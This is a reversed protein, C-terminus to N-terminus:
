SALALAAQLLVNAGNVCDQWETYERASHSHGGVSPVFIMGAPCIKALWQADHGAGSPLFRYSLGLTGCAEAVAQRLRPDTLIPAAQDVQKFLLSLRFRRAAACAAERLAVEVEELQAAHSSRFELSVVVTQPVVNFAGPEFLMNGVTAVCGPFREMVTERVALAFASAGLAADRRRDM